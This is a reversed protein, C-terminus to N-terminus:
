GTFTPDGPVPDAPPADTADTVLFADPDYILFPDTTDTIETTSFCAATVVFVDGEQAKAPVLAKTSWSGDANTPLIKDFVPVIDADDLTAADLLVVEVAPGVKGASDVCTTVSSVTPKSGAPGFVPDLLLTGSAPEPPASPTATPTPTPTVTPTASPSSTATPSATATDTPSPSVTAAPSAPADVAFAAAPVLAFAVVAGTAVALTKRM